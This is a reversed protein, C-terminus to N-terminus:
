TDCCSNERIIQFPSEVFKSKSKYVIPSEMDFVYNGERIEYQLNLYFEMRNKPNKFIM